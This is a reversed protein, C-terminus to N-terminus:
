ALRKKASKMGIGIFILIIGFSLNTWDPDIHGTQMPVLLALYIMNSFVFGFGSWIFVKFLLGLLDKLNLEFLASEDVKKKTLYNVVSFGLYLILLTIILQIFLKPFAGTPTPLFQSFSDM